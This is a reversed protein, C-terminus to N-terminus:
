DYMDAKALQTEYWVEYVNDKALEDGQELIQAQEHPSFEELKREVKLTEDWICEVEASAEDPESAELHYQVTITNCRGGSVFSESEFKYEYAM